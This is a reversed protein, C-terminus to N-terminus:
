WNGGTKGFLTKNVNENILEDCNTSARLINPSYQEHEYQPCDRCIRVCPFNGQCHPLCYKIVPAPRIAPRDLGGIDRKM